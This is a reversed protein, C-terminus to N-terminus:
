KKRASTNQSLKPRVSADLRADEDQSAGSVLRDQRANDDRLRQAMMRKATGDAM